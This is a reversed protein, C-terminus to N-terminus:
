IRACKNPSFFVLFLLFLLTHVGDDCIKCTVKVAMKGKKDEKDKKEKKKKGHHSSSSSSSAGGSSHPLLHRHSISKGGRGAGAGEEDDDMDLSIDELLEADLDM